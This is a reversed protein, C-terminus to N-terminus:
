IETLGVCFYQSWCESEAAAGCIGGSIFEHTKYLHTSGLWFM